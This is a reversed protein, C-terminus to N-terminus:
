SALFLAPEGLNELVLAMFRRGQGGDIVRHDYSLSLPMMPAVSVAGSEAVAREAARGISLIATTGPPVIPTGFGGGIAGINSITFTQGTLEDPKLKREKAAAALRRIDAATELLTRTDAAKVIGVLLGDPTDVAVGIDFHSFVMLDDGDISSNFDPFEMLAPL